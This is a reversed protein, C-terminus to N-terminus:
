RSGIEDLWEHHQLDLQEPLEGDLVNMLKTQSIHPIQNRDVRRIGALDQQMQRLTENYQQVHSGISMMAKERGKRVAGLAPGLPFQDCRPNGLHQWGVDGMIEKPLTVINVHNGTVNGLYESIRQKMIMKERREFELIEGMMSNATAFSVFDDRDDLNAEIVDSIKASMGGFYTKAFSGMRLGELKQLDNTDNIDFDHNDLGSPHWKIKNRYYEKAIGELFGPAPSNPAAPPFLVDNQLEVADNMTCTPMTFLQQKSQQPLFNSHTSSQSYNNSTKPKRDFLSM